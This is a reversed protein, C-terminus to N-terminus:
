DVVPASWQASRGDWTRHALIQGHSDAATTNASSNVYMGAYYDGSDGGPASAMVVNLDHCGSTSSKYATNWYSRYGTNLSTRACSDASAAPALALVSTAAAGAIALTALAKKM